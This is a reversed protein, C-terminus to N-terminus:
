YKDYNASVFYRGEHFRAVIDSQGLIITYSNQLVAFDPIIYPYHPIARSFILVVAETAFISTAVASFSDRFYGSCFFMEFDGDTISVLLYM